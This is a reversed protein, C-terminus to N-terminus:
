IVVSVFVSILWIGSDELHYDTVLWQASPWRLLYVPCTLFAGEMYTGFFCLKESTRSFYHKLHLCVSGVSDPSVPATVRAM